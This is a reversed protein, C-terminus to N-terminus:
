SSAASPLTKPTSSCVAYAQLVHGVGLVCAAHVGGGAHVSRERMRSADKVGHTAGKGRVM